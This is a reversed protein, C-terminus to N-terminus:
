KVVRVGEKYTAYDDEAVGNETFRFSVPDSEAIPKGNYYVAHKDRAYSPVGNAYGGYSVIQFTAPDAGPIFKGEFYVVYKDKAYEEQPGGAFELLQYSTPDAVKLVDGNHVVHNKDKVYNYGSVLQFTSADFSKQEIGGYFVSDKDRAWVGGEDVLAFSDPDAGEIAEGRFFVQDDDMAYDEHEPIYSFLAPSAGEIKKNDFYVADKDGTYMFGSEFISVFFTAPDVGELKRGYLATLDEVDAYSDKPPSPPPPPGDPLLRKKAGNDNRNAFDFYYVAKKDKIYSRYSDGWVVEFSKPDIGVLKGGRFYVFHRDTTYDPPQIMSTSEDPSPPPCDITTGRPVFGSPSICYRKELHRVLLTGSVVIVICAGLWHWNKFSFKRQMDCTYLFIVANGSVKVCEHM